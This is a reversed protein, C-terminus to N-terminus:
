FDTTIGTTFAWDDGFDNGFKYQIETCLKLGEGLRFESGLHLPVMLGSESRDFVDERSFLLQMGLYPKARPADLSPWNRSVVVSPGVRLLNLDDATEVSLAAGVVVDVAFEADQKAVRAKFDAGLRVATQDSAGQDYFALGGHFGFDMEPQFSLRLQGMFAFMDGNIEAAGGLTHGNMPVVSGGTYQSFTQAESRLPALALAGTLALTAIWRLV